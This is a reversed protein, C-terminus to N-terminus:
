IEINKGDSWIREINYHERMEKTFIHIVFDTYDLLIWSANKFGEVSRAIKGQKSLRNEIEDAIAQVQLLNDGSIMVFCDAISSVSEIDIAKINEGKKQSHQM